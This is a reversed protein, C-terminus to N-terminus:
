APVMSPPSSSPAKGGLVLATCIVLDNKAITTTMLEAQKARFSDSM